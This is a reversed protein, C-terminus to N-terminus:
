FVADSTERIERSLSIGQSPTEGVQKILQGIRDLKRAHLLNSLAPIFRAVRVPSQLQLNLGTSLHGGVRGASAAM